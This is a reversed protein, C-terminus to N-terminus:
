STPLGTYSREWNAQAVDLADQVSIKGSIADVFTPNFSSGGVDWVGTSGPVLYPDAAQSGWPGDDMVVHSFFDKGVYQLLGSWQPVSELRPPQDLRYAVDRGEIEARARVVEPSHWWFFLEKVLPWTDLAENGARIGYGSAVSPAEQHLITQKGDVSPFPFGLLELEPNSALAKDWMWPGHLVMAARKSIFNAEQDAEWERNWWGQPNWGKELALKSYEFTHRYPSDSANFPAEGLWCAYQRERTGDPYAVPVLNMYRMYNFGNIWGRDWGLDIKKDLEAYRNLDDLLTGLDDLTRVDRQPDWGVDALIDRHYIFSVVIGKFPDVVRPGSLNYRNSWEHEVDYTWRDFYPFGIDSLDVFEKYNTGDITRGSNGPVSEMAPLYGGAVKALYAAETDENFTVLNIRVGPHEAEFIQLLQSYANAYEALDTVFDLTVDAADQASVFGYGVAALGASTIASRRLFERRTIKGEFYREFGRKTGM